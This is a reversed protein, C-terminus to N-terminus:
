HECKESKLYKRVVTLSSSTKLEIPLKTWARQGMIRVTDTGYNTTRVKPLNLKSTVRLQYPVEKEGFTEIMFPPNLRNKTKYIEIM